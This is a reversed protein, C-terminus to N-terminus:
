NVVVYRFSEKLKGHVTFGGDVVTELSLDGKAKGGGVYQLLIMSTRRVRADQIFLTDNNLFTYITPSTLVNNNGAPGQPGQPGEPGQPGM